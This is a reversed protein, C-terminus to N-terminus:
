KLDILELKRSHLSAFTDVIEDEDLAQDYYIHMLALGNLRDNDMTTRLFTKLRRLHSVSRECECTTVPKTLLIKLVTSLNPFLESDLDKLIDKIEFFSKHLMLNCYIDVEAEIMHPFPLDDISNKLLTIIDKYNLSAPLLSKILQVHSNSRFRTKLDVIMHDLFPYYLSYLYYQNADQSPPNDRLTQHSSWRPKSITSEVKVAFAEACDFLTTFKSSNQRLEELTNIVKDVHGYATYWDLSRRQLKVTASMTYHLLTRTTILTIIFQGTTLTCLLGGAKSSAEGSFGGQAIDKLAKVIADYLEYIADLADVREIWRHLLLLLISLLSIM